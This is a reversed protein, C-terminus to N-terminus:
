ATRDLVATLVRIVGDEYRRLARCDCGARRPSGSRAGNRCVGRYLRRLAEEYPQVMPDHYRGIQHVQPLAAFIACSAECARRVDPGHCRSGPPRLYCRRCIRSRLECRLFELSPPRPMRIEAYVGRIKVADDNGSFRPTETETRPRRGASRLVADYPM